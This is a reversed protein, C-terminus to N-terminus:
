LSFPNGKGTECYHKLSVLYRGWQFNCHGFFDTSEKWNAHSFKLRTSNSDPLLIFRIRTGSWEPDAQTCIWSVEKDRILRSIMMKNHYREGFIFEAVSGEKPSAKTEKTWWGSLGKQETLAEYVTSVPAKINLLHFIEPM